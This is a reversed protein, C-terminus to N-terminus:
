WRYTATATVRRGDGYVCTGYSCILTDRDALNSVNLALMWSGADYAAMADFSTYAPVPTRTGNWDETRGVHRAGAGLQVGTALLNESKLWLAAQHRPMGSQPLGVQAAIESRTTRANTHAYSATTSLHRTLRGKLELEIGESLVEGTQVPRTLGARRSLVNTQKLRFVAASALLDQAPSQWRVGLEAQEGRRPEYRRGANDIGSVPEFSQSFSAFPAFGSAFEYVLGLRGTFADSREATGGRPTSRAWAQRGGALLSLRGWKVQDQLYLGVRTQQEQSDDCLAMGVPRAGYSPRFVDLPAMAACSWRSVVTHRSQDSGAVLTHAAGAAQFQYQVSTDASVGRTAELEDYASRLWFRGDAAAEDLGTFRIQNRSHLYRLGHRLTLADSFAHSFVYGLAHQRTDQRDFDPEGVFRERPIRGHPSALLSGELPVGYIYATRRDNYHGLLTLSTAASPTWRLSPAVYVTDNPIHQVATDAQRALVVLRAAWQDSWNRGLDAAAARHRRNGAELKVEDVMGPGPQKTVINLVGGPAAAGFLVSAAGKLLEVREMGYPEQQGTAWGSAGLKLGDRYVGGSGDQLRFGRSFFVDYSNSYGPDHLVGPTYALVEALSTAKTDEIQQATVIAMSQPTEIIPTDTKTGTATRRAAYGIVPGSPQERLAEAKARVAPLATEAAATPPAPTITLLGDTIRGQLGSGRLLEALAAHPDLAGNVPRGQRGRLQEPSAVLQLGAQRAFQALAQDLPQAPLTFSIAPRAAPATTQALAPSLTLSLHLLLAAACATHTLRHPTTM